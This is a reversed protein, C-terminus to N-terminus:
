RKVLKIRDITIGRILIGIIIDVSEKTELIRGKCGSPNFSNFISCLSEGVTFESILFM